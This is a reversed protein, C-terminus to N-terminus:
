SGEFFFQEGDLPELHDLWTAIESYKAFFPRNVWNQNRAQLFRLVFAREGNVEAIGLVEIKGPDTSMVPGRATRGIGSISQVACQYLEWAKYLPVEFYHRAGTDRELFMYYPVIGLDVQKQWLKSWDAANDNIHKLLPGQSRIVVGAKRVKYIALKAVDTELERWHNYHTMLAINKGCKVVESFLDLLDEADGDSVFRQPWFTLSKTGIRITKIHSLEPMLLPEIYARLNKTKMVMPDGGTILVDTVEKHDLLYDILQESERAAMKLNNDGIFQAWRFCFTCYSHCTQGSAPFFLVTEKYKHQIGELRIEKVTPINKELQGSPHPNLEGRIRTVLEQLIEKSSQQKIAEAVANYYDDRLMGKQPFTLQFIPDKPVNNWNILENIVYENVRFPLVSSVVKIQFKIEDSLQSLQPISEYNKSTYIKIKEYVLESSIDQAKVISSNMNM